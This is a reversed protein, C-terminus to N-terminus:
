EVGLTEVAEAMDEESPQTYIATTELSEHGMMAAVTVLDIGKGRVLRTGFTHRLTHPSIELGAHQGQVLFQGGGLRGRGLGHELALNLDGVATDVAQDVPQIIQGLFLDGNHFFVIRSLRSSGPGTARPVPGALVGALLFVPRPAFPPIPLIVLWAADNQLWFGPSMRYHVRPFSGVLASLLLRDWSGNLGLSDSPIVKYEGVWGNM